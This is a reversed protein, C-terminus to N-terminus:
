YPVLAARQWASNGRVYIYNQDWVMTGPDGPDSSAPSFFNKINYRSADIAGTTDVNCSGLEIQGGSNIKGINISGGARNPDIYVNGSGDNIIYIGATGVVGTTGIIVPNDSTGVPVLTTGDGSGEIRSVHVPAGSLVGIRILYAAGHSDLYLEGLRDGVNSGTGDSNPLGNCFLTLQGNGNKLVMFPGDMSIQGTAHVNYFVPSNVLFGGALLQSNLSWALVLHGQQTPHLGSNYLTTDTPDPLAAAADWVFDYPVQRSRIAATLYQYADINSFSSVSQAPLTVALIVTFGDTKAQGLYSLLSAVITPGDLGNQIDNIGIMVSLYVIDAGDGGNGKPRHPYVSTTYRAAMSVVTSGSVATNHVDSHLKAYTLGIFVSAYCQTTPDSLTEGATISDGEFVFSEGRPIRVVDPPVRDLRITPDVPM